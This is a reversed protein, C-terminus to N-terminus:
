RHVLYQPFEMIVKTGVQYESEITITGGMAEVYRRAISTGLGTGEIKRITEARYFEDFVQDVQEKTMGIGEDQVTIRVKGEVKEIRTIIETEEESYKVANGLINRLIKKLADENVDWDMSDTLDELIFSHPPKIDKWYTIENKMFDNLNVRQWDTDTFAWPKIQSLDLLDEIIKTLYLADANIKQAYSYVTEPESIKRTMLLESYGRISTLPTRFEHAATSVFESKRTDLERLEKETQKRKQIEQTLHNTREAVKRELETRIEQLHTHAESLNKKSKDFEFITQTLLRTQVQALFSRCRMYLAKEVLDRNIKTVEEVHQIGAKGINETM